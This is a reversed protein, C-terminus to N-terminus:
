VSETPEQQRPVERAESPQLAFRGPGYVLLLLLGAGMGLNKMFDMLHGFFAEPAVRWVPHGIYTAAVVYILLGLLAPRTWVGLMVFFPLILEAFTGIMSLQYPYPIGARAVTVAIAPWQTIKYYASVPFIAVLLIRYLLLTLDKAMADWSQSLYTRKPRAM